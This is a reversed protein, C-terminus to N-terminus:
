DDKKVVQYFKNNYNCIDVYSNVPDAPAMEPRYVTKNMGTSITHCQINHESGFNAIIAGPGLCERDDKKEAKAKEYIKRYVDCILDMALSSGYFIDDSADIRLYEFDRRSVYPHFIDLYNNKDARFDLKFNSNPEFIIDYRTKVVFDYRFGMEVEYEKKLFNAYMMSYFLSDWPFRYNKIVDVGQICYKKPNLRHIIHALVSENVAEDGTWYVPETNPEPNPQLRKYTNYNWTHCFFDFEAEGSFFSLISPITHEIVRPQGSLCVAIKM